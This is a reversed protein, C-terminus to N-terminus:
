GGPAPDAGTSYVSQPLLDRESGRSWELLVGTADDQLAGAQYQLVARRLRRLTEPASQGACGEREIFEALRELTFFEGDPLRAEPLGDTYLLVTDGPELSEQGVAIEDDGYPVGLPTAPAVELAKVLRSERLLLPPPHGASVWRLRGSGLHLEALVATVYADGGGYNAAVADTMTVYMEVLGQGRRRSQRYASVAFAALGAAALGHGMADFVAVHAVDANVAFDYSDGGVDYCPELFASIVLRDTAFTRPPVLQWQLEAGISMPRSRRVYEALDGYASKSVIVMAVLHAFRECTTSMEADVQGHPAPVNVELVGLRDTGDLLPVWLKRRAPDDGSTTVVAATSYSRGAVSGDISLSPREPRGPVPVPVLRAEEYDALYLVCDRGDVREFEEAVIAPVADPTSLHTRRLFEGYLMGARATHADGTVSGDEGVRDAAAAPESM